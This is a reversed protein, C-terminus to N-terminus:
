KHLSLACKKVTRRNTPRLQFTFNQGSSSFVSGDWMVQCSLTLFAPQKPHCFKAVMVHDQESCLLSLCILSM